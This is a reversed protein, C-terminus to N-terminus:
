VAARVEDLIRSLIVENIYRSSDGNQVLLEEPSSEAAPSQGMALESRPAIIDSTAENGTDLITEGRTMATVTRELRVLRASIEGITM